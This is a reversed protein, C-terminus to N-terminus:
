VIWGEKNQFQLNDNKMNGNIRNSFILLLAGPVKNLRIQDLKFNGPNEKCEFALKVYTVRCLQSFM